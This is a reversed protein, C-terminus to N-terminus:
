PCFLDFNTKKSKYLDFSGFILGIYTWDEVRKKKKLKASLKSKNEGKKRRKCFFDM